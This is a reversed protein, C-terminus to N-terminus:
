RTRGRAKRMPPRSATAAALAALHREFIADAIPINTQYWDNWDDTKDEGLLLLAQREPDFVYLIRINGAPPILEKMNAFRSAKIIGSLPRRLAPGDEQLRLVTAVIADREEDALATRYWERFEPSRLVTWRDSVNNSGLVLVDVYYAASVCTASPERTM